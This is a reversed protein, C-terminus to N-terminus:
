RKKKARPGLAPAPPWQSVVGARGTGDIGCWKSSTPPLACGAAAAQAELEQTEDASLAIGAAGVNEELHKVSATGPIPLKM